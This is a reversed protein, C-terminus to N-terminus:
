TPQQRHTPARHSELLHPIAASEMPAHSQFSCKRALLRSQGHCIPPHLWVLIAPACLPATLLGRAPRQGVGAVLRQLQGLCAVLAARVVVQAVEVGLAAAEYALRSEYFGAGLPLNGPNVMELALRNARDVTLNHAQEQGEGSTRDPFM